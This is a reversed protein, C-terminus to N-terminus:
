DVARDQRAMGVERRIDARQGSACRVSVYFECCAIVLVTRKRRSDEACPAARRRGRDTGSTLEQDIRHAHFRASGVGVRRAGFSCVYSGRDDLTNVLTRSDDVDVYSDLM